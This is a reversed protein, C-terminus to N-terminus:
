GFPHNERPLMRSDVCQISNCRGTSSARTVPCLENRREACKRLTRKANDRYALSYKSSDLIKRAKREDLGTQWLEVEKRYVIEDNDCQELTPKTPYDSVQKAAKAESRKKKAAAKQELRLREKTEVDKHIQLAEKRLANKSIEPMSSDANQLRASIADLRAQQAPSYKLKV